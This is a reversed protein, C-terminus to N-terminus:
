ACVLLPELSPGTYGPPVFCVRALLPLEDLGVAGDVVLRDVCEVLERGVKRPATWVIGQRTYARRLCALVCALQVGTLTPSVASGLGM